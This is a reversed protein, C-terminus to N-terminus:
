PKFHPISKEVKVHFEQGNSMLHPETRKLSAIAVAKTKSPGPEHLGRGHVEIVFLNRRYTGGMVRMDCARYVLNVARLSGPTTSGWASLTSRLQILLKSQVFTGLAELCSVQCSSYAHSQHTTADIPM